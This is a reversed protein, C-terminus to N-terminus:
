EAKELIKNLEESEFVKYKGNEDSYILYVLVEKHESVFKITKELGMVMFATAYADASMCDGAFVSASLLTNRAPYGTKPNIEHSYKIGNEIYFKRYNGSTSLAKNKLKVIAMLPNSSNPNNEPQEIGVKWQDGNPKTNKAFVEGGIEVLYNKIGKSGLFQSVVDVSYGQAIANFDLTVRQDKKIIKGEKCEVMRYGVFNLLSDIVTSDVKSKRKNGFGWARVLPGVTIDFAGDTNQSIEMSRDFCVKFYNDISVDPDNRNVRSLVSTSDYSSLSSSFDSLLKDIDTQFNRQKKDFYTISYTTGQTRGNIKIPNVQSFLLLATIQMVSFLFIKRKM